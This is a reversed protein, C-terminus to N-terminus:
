ILGAKRADKLIKNHDFCLSPIKKKVVLPNETENSEKIKGRAECVFALSVTHARPDRKPSSYGRFQQLKKIKLGTEEFAERKAAQEFTEGYEVFGGPICYGIPPFKRHVIVIGKYRDKEYYKIILDVAVRPLKMKVVM